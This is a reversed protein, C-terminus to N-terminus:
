TNQLNMRGLNDPSIRVQSPACFYEQGLGMQHGILPNALDRMPRTTRRTSSPGLHTSLAPHHVIRGHQVRTTCCKEGMQLAETSTVGGCGGPRMCANSALRVTPVARDHDWGHRRYGPWAALDGTTLSATPGPPPAPKTKCCPPNVNGTPIM